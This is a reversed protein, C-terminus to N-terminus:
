HHQLIAASNAIHRMPMPLSYREYFRLVENFRELQLRAHALNSSDANAFHSYIGDTVINQMKSIKKIFNEVDNPMLGERGLCSDIAIHVKQKKHLKEATKNILILHALDFVSLVCGLKIAKELDDKAVYGLILIPKNTHKKIRALEEVSNVQFYDVYASLIKVVEVDGHGYANAKVVAMVKTGKKLVSKLQLVNHILNKKSIEIYSLSIKQSM